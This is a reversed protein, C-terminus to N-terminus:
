LLQFQFRTQFFQTAGKLNFRDLVGYGYVLELRILPSLYWNLTSTVKWFAGGPQLGHNTDFISYKLVGEWAGPGGKFVSRKPEIFFFVNNNSLFPRVEGTFVYASTVEGGTFRPNGAQVSDFSYSYVETGVTLPGGRYYAEGGIATSHDAAFVGTDIFYPAPNSEPKSRVQIQGNDPVAYRLSVGVTVLPNEETTYLPRWGFRGSVQHDWIAFRNNEDIQDTFAGASWFLKPSPLYGYWRVGDNMIPILDLSMPRENEWISYGNQVKLLSFGEKQRGIFIESHWEPVGILLGTERFTWQNTVADKMVAAKWILPRKTKFKGNAFFRFDRFQFKNAVVVGALNMQEKATANQSYAAAEHIYAIGFRLTTFRFDFENWDSTSDVVAPDDTIKSDQARVKPSMVFLLAAALVVLSQAFHDFPRRSSYPNTM